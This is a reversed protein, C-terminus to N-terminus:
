YAWQPLLKLWILRDQRFIRVIDVPALLCIQLGNASESQIREHKQFAIGSLIKWQSIFTLLAM